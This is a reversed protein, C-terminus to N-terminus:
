RDASVACRFGTSWYANEAYGWGRFSARNWDADTMWSGGRMGRGDGSGPGSPNSSPSSRYYSEQYWDEVWEWVNGTMDLAGYPSAGGPYRGVPTTGGVLEDFNLLGGTPAASGWPYTRGDTGRAAKEWEAETPLRRGAWACYARADSWSVRVVPHSGLGDLDSGPGDPQFWYAGRTRDWNLGNYTWSWGLSEADTVRGTESVFLTFLENTVETRDIWFADLYVDHVPQEDAYDSSSGMAFSGAPVYVLVMGDVPATMTSGIGPAPIPTRTATPLPAGVEPTSSPLAAPDSSLQGVPTHGPDQSTRDDGQNLFVILLVASIICVVGALSGFGAVWLWWTRKAPVSGSTSFLDSDPVSSEEQLRTFQSDEQDVTASTVAPEEGQELVVADIAPRDDGKSQPLLGALAKEFAAMDPYRDELQKSLAKILVKEVKEPLDPVFQTPRPLPETAQKLLIAPPTDAVYPKRGTVLEYFVVGLSYVDSQPVARGTWQEPAMYEPTGVGMGTSTLSITESDSVLIKAIGFDGLLPVGAQAMLINSPKVDRHIIGQAHAYTLAGAVPLLLRAADQWPVPKRVSKLTRGPIYELILYPSGEYEGYDLVKLINPHSLRALAQAEREFRSLVRDLLESPFASQRIVKVAVDRELRTDYAKYVTAMGGEGLQELIHYRGLSQGILDSM